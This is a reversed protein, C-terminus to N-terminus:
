IVYRTGRVHLVDPHGDQKGLYAYVIEGDVTPMTEWECEYNENKM